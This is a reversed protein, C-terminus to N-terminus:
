WVFMHQLPDAFTNKPPNLFKKTNTKQTKPTLRGEWVDRKGEEIMTTQAERRLSFKQLAGLANQRAFSDNEEFRLVGVLMQILNTHQSFISCVLSYQVGVMFSFFVVFQESSYM